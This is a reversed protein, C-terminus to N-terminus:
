AEGRAVAFAGAAGLTVVVTIGHDRAVAQAFARPEPPAGFAPALSAAEHENVMLVDLVEGWSADLPLAPAANLMVPKGLARARRALALSEAAPTELQMVLLNCRRLAADPVQSARALANAGAVVTIANEGRADVHILAVGTPADVTAVLALDVGEARLLALAPAAFADRGTAGALTVGAGARRAALAQNAGKGGPSMLVGHGAITEGARPLADVRAAVDVNISGFVLIM